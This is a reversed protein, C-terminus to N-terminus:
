DSGCKGIFLAISIVTFVIGSSMLYKQYITSRANKFIFQILFLVLSFGYIITNYPLWPLGILVSHYIPAAMHYFTYRPVSYMIKFYFVTFIHHSLYIHQCYTMELINSYFLKNFIDYAYYVIGTFSYIIFLTDVITRKYIVKDKAINKNNEKAQNSLEPLSLNWFKFMEKHTEVTEEYYFKNLNWPGFIIKIFLITLAPIISYYQVVVWVKHYDM